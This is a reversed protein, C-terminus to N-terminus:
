KYYARGDIRVDIYHSPTIHESTLQERVALFAGTQVAATGSYLNFKVIYPVGSIAVDLEDAAPPLTLSKIGISHAKLQATVVKIFQVDSETVVINGQKVTLGSQDNVVPLDLGTGRPVNSVNILARGNNDIIYSNHNITSLIFVPQTPQIYIIPRHGILPLTISVDALEPFEQKLKESVASVNITIKNRSSFSENLLAEAAKQYVASSRLFHGNDASPMPVIKPNTSLGVVYVVCALIVIVGIITGFHILAFQIWRQAKARNNTEERLQVRGTNIDQQSRNAYYSFARPRSAEPPVPRRREVPPQKKKFISM